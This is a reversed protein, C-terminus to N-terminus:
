QQQGEVLPRAVRFGHTPYRVPAYYYERNSTRLDSASSLWSAGRLVRQSCDPAEWSSGEDPAGQYTAHWCDSVWQKVSGVMDYFGLANPPFSGVIAPSADSRPQGCEACNAMGSMLTEGVLIQDKVPGAGRIGM